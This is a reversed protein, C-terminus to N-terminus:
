STVEMKGCRPCMVVEDDGRWGTYCRETPVHGFMRCWLRECCETFLMWWVGVASM